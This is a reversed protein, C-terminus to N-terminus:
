LPCPPNLVLSVFDCLRSVTPVSVGFPLPRRGENFWVSFIGFARPALVDQELSDGIMAISQAPVGLRTTVINWFEPEDKRYGLETFCFIESLYQLLGARELALQIMPKRSVTANTAIHLPYSGHLAALTESAGALASVEPWLAM